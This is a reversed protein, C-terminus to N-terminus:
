TSSEESEEGPPFSFSFNAIPNSESVTGSLEQTEGQVLITLSFDVQSSTTCFSFLNISVVYDGQPAGGVPWFVNEVPSSTTEDCAANADVDLEGGSAVFPNFYTATDGDPDTVALDLDDSTSWRLTVQVDGTGLIVPEAGCLRDLDWITGFDDIVFCAGELQALVPIDLDAALGLLVAMSLLAPLCSPKFM